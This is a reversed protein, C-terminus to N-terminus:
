LAIVWLFVAVAVAIALILLVIAPMGYGQKALEAELAISGGVRNKTFHEVVDKLGQLEEDTMQLTALREDVPAIILQNLGYDELAGAFDDRLRNRFGEELTARANFEYVKLPTVDVQVEPLYAVSRKWDLTQAALVANM